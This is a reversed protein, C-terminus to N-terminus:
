LFQLFPHPGRGVIMLAVSTLDISGQYDDSSIDGVLKKGSRELLGAVSKSLALCFALVEGAGKEKGLFRSLEESANELAPIHSYVRESTHSFLSHGTDHLLAALRM